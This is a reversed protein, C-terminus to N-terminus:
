LVKKIETAIEVCPAKAGAIHPWQSICEFYSIIYM